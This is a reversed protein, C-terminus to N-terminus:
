KQKETLRKSYKSSCRHDITLGLTSCYIVEECMEDLFENGNDDICPVEKVGIEKISLIDCFSITLLVIASIAVCILAYACIIDIQEKYNM